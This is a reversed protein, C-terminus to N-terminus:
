RSQDLLPPLWGIELELGVVEFLDANRLLTLYSPKPDVFHPDQYGKALATVSVRDGGIEKTLSALDTTTTVVNIKANIKDAAYSAPAYSAPTIFALLLFALKKM